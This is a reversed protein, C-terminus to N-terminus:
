PEPRRVGEATVIYSGHFDAAADISDWRRPNTCCGSHCWTYVAGSPLAVGDADALLPATGHDNIVHPGTYGVLVFPEPLRNEGASWDRAVRRTEFQACPTGQGSENLKENEVRVKMGKGYRRM